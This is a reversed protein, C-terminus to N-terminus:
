IRLISSLIILQFEWLKSDLKEYTHHTQDIAGAITGVTPLYLNTTTTLEHMQQTAVYIFISMVYVASFNSEM